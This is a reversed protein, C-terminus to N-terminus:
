IRKEIETVMSVTALSCNDLLVKRVRQEDKPRWDADPCADQHGGEVWEPGEYMGLADDVEPLVVLSSESFHTVHSSRHRRTMPLQDHILM